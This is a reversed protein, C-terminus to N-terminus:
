TARALEELVRGLDPHKWTELTLVVTGVTGYDGDQVKVKFPPQRSSLVKQLTGMAKKVPGVDVVEVWIEKLHGDVGMRVQRGTGLAGRNTRYGDEYWRYRVRTEEEGSATIRGLTERVVTWLAREVPNWVRIGARMAAVDLHQGEWPIHVPGAYSWPLDDQRHLLQLALRGQAVVDAIDAKRLMGAHHTRVLETEIWGKAGRLHSWGEGELLRKTLPANSPLVELNWVIEETHDGSALSLVAGNLRTGSIPADGAFGFGWGSLGAYPSRRARGEVQNRIGDTAPFFQAFVAPMLKQLRLFIENAKIAATWAGDSLALRADGEGFAAFIGRLDDRMRSLTTDADRQEDPISALVDDWTICPWGPPMSERVTSRVLGLVAATGIAESYFSLQSDDPTCPGVKAELIIRTPPAGPAALSVLLDARGNGTNTRLPVQAQIDLAELQATQLWREIAGAVQPFRPEEPCPAACAEAICTLLSRAFDLDECAQHGTCLSLFDERSTRRTTNALSQLRFLFDQM